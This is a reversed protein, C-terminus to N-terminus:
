RNIRFTSLDEDEKLENGLLHVEVLHTKLREREEPDNRARLIHYSGVELIHECAAYKPVKFVVAILKVVIYKPILLLLVRSEFKRLKERIKSVKVMFHRGFHRVQLAIDPGRWASGSAPDTM